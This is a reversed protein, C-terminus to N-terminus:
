FVGGNKFYEMEGETSERGLVKNRGPFRGYESIARYHADVDEDVPDRTKNWAQDDILESHEIPLTFFLRCQEPVHHVWGRAIATFALPIAKQCIHYGEPLDRYINLSYQDLLIILALMSYAGEFAWQHYEGRVAKEVDAKFRESIEKDLEEGGGFWLDFNPKVETSLAGTEPNPAWKDKGFWFDLVANRREISEPALAWRAKQTAIAIPNKCIVPVKSAM